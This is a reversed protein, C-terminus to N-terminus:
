CKVCKLESIEGEGNGKNNYYGATSDIVKISVAVIHTEHESGSYTAM